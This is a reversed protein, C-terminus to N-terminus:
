SLKPNLYSGMHFNAEKASMLPKRLITLDRFSGNVKPIGYIDRAYNLFSKNIRNRNKSSDSYMIILNESVDKLLKLSTVEGQNALIFKAPNLLYVILSPRILGLEEKTLKTKLNDVM